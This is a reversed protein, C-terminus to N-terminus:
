DLASVEWAFIAGDKHVPHVLDTFPSSHRPGLNVVRQALVEFCEILDLMPHNPADYAYILIISCDSLNGQILKTCDTISSKDKPYPSLIKSVSDRGQPVFGKDGLMRLAKIEIAFDFRPKTGICYDCRDKSDSYQVELEYNSYLESDICAMEEAVLRVVATEDHPGIGPQWKKSQPRRSDVNKLAASFDDVLRQLHGM